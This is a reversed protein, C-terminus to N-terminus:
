AQLRRLTARAALARSGDSSPLPLLCALGYVISALGGVLGLETATAAAALGATVSALPGGLAVKLADGATERAASLRTFTDPRWPGDLDIAGVMADLQRVRAETPTFSRRGCLARALAHGAEHVLIVAIALALTLM